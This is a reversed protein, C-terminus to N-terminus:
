HACEMEDLGSISIRSNHVVIGIIKSIARGREMGGGGLKSYEDRSLSRDVREWLDAVMHGISLIEDEEDFKCPTFDDCMYDADDASVISWNTVDYLVVVLAILYEVCFTNEDTSELTDCKWWALTQHQELMRKIRSRMLAPTGLATRTSGDNRIVYEKHNNFDPCATLAGYIQDYIKKDCGIQDNIKSLAEENTSSTLDIPNDGGDDDSHNENAAEENWNFDLIDGHILPLSFVEDTVNEEALPTIMNTHKDPTDISLIESMCKAPSIASGAAKAPTTYAVIEDILEKDQYKNPTKAHVVEMSPNAKAFPKATSTDKTETSQITTSLAIINDSLKKSSRTDDKKLHTTKAPGPPFLPTVTTDKEDKIKAPPTNMEEKIVAKSDSISNSHCNFPRDKKDNRDRNYRTRKFEEVLRRKLAPRYTRVKQARSKVQVRTRTPIVMNIQKWNGWGHLACGREFQHNEIATWPGTGMIPAKSKPM